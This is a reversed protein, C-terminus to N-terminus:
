MFVVSSRSISIVFCKAKLWLVYLQSYFYMKFFLPALVMWLLQIFTIFEGASGSVETANLPSKRAWEFLNEYVNGDYRGLVSNLSKDNFDFSDVLAVANPRLQSLLEKIRASIQLVQSGKLLGAQIFSLLLTKM